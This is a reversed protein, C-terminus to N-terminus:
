ELTRAAALKKAFRAAEEFADFIAGGTRKIAGVLMLNEREGFAEIATGDPAFLRGDRHESKGRYVDQVMREEFLRKDSSYGIIIPARPVTYSLAAMFGAEFATGADMAPGRFPEMNVLIIGIRDPACCGLIMEENAKAILHAAKRPDSFAEAPIENDFPYHGIM